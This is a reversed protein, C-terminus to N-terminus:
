LGPSAESSKAEGRQGRAPLIGGDAMTRQRSWLPGVFYGRAYARGVIAMALTAGVIATVVSAEIGFAGGTLLDPGELAAQWLGAPERGSVPLGLIPGQTLNLAYHAGIALWLRRTLIYVSALFVGAVAAITVAAFISANENGLHLVGFMVASLTLAM